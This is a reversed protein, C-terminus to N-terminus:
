LKKNEIKIKFDKKLNVSKKTLTMLMSDKIISPFNQKVNKFTKEQPLTEEFGIKEYFKILKEYSDKTRNILLSLKNTSELSNKNQKYYEKVKNILKTAIGKRRYKEKTCVNWIINWKDIMLVSVLENSDKPYALFWRSNNPPLISIYHGFCDSIIIQISNILKTDFDPRSDNIEEIRIPFDINRKAKIYKRKYKLYKKFYNM